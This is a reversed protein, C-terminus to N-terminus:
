RKLAELLDQALVKAGDTKGWWYCEERTVHKLPKKDIALPRSAMRELRKILESVKDNDM